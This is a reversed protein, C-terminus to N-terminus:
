TRRRKSTLLRGRMLDCWTLIDMLILGICDNVTLWFRLTLFNVVISPRRRWARFSGLLRPMSAHLTVYGSRRPIGMASKFM